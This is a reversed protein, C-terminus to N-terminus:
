RVGSRRLEASLRRLVEARQEPASESSLRSALKLVRAAADLSKRADGAVPTRAAVASSALREIARGEDAVHEWLRRTDQSDTAAGIRQLFEEVREVARRVEERDSM